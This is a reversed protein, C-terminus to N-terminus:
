GIDGEIIAREVYFVPGVFDVAKRISCTNLLRQFVFIVRQLIGLAVPTGWAVPDLCLVSRLLYLCECFAQDVNPKSRSKQSCFVQNYYTSCDKSFLMTGTM